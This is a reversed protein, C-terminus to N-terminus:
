VPRRPRSDIEGLAAKIAMALNWWVGQIGRETYHNAYEELEERMATTFKPRQMEALHVKADAIRKKAQEPTCVGNNKRIKRLEKGVLKRPHLADALKCRYCLHEGALIEVRFKDTYGKPHTRAHEIVDICTAGKPYGQHTIQCGMAIISEVAAMLAPSAEVTDVGKEVCRIPPNVDKAKRTKQRAKHEEEYQSAYFGDGESAHMTGPHGWPRDCPGLTMSPIGCLKKPM